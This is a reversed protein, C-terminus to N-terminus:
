AGSQVPTKLHYNARHRVPNALLSALKRSTPQHRCRRTTTRRRRVFFAVSAMAGSPAPPRNAIGALGVFVSHEDGLNACEALEVSQSFVSFPNFSWHAQPPRAVPMTRAQDGEDVIPRVYEGTKGIWVLVELRDGVPRQKQGGNGAADHVAFSQPYRAGMALRGHGGGEESSNGLEEAVQHCSRLLQGRLLM